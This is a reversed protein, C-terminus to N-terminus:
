STLPLHFAFTSGNPDSHLLEISGRHSQIIQRSISLGLGTGKQSGCFFPQFLQQQLHPALGGGTDSVTIVAQAPLGGTAQTRNLALTVTGGEPMAELANLLLNLLVQQIQGKHVSTVLPEAHPLFDIRVGAQEAKLRILLLTEEALRNLDEPTHLETRSKGFELVRGVIEDLQLIKERIVAVDRTRPDDSEFDWSLADFLLKIVTLPNRVEHAIEAALLGLTTLRENKRLQEESAFVRAYLRSNRIAAAGQSALSACILREDNSFRHTHDTYATLIGIARGEYIIPTALMSKLGESAILELLHVEETKALDQVAIQKQRLLAFGLSSEELALTEEYLRGTELGSLAQLRLVSAGAQTQELLYIACLRCGILERTEKSILLLISQLDRRSVLQEGVRILTQLQDAKSKLQNILWLRSVATTAEATLLCLLKLDEESFANVAVSDVNVVGVTAGKLLMPAAMESRITNKLSIYRDELRVDPVLLPKGHLAVWGTVGMGLRFAFSDSPLGHYMEMELENTDPNILLISASSANLKEVLEQLILQLAVRTDDTQGVVRSIRYLSDIVSRDSQPQKAM